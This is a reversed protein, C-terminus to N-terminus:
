QGLVRLHCPDVVGGGRGVAGLEEHPPVVRSGVALATRAFLTECLRDLDALALTVVCRDHEADAHVDLVEPGSALAAVLAPDRGESFNPVAECVSAPSM